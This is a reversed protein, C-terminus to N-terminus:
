PRAQSRLMQRLGKRAPDRCDLQHQEVLTDHGASLLHLGWDSFFRRCTPLDGSAFTIEDIGSVSM